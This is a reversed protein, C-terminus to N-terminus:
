RKDESPKRKNKRKGLHILQHIFGVLEALMGVVLSIVSFFGVTAVAVAFAREVNQLAVGLASIDGIVLGVIYAVFLAWMKQHVFFAALLGALIATAPILWLKDLPADPAAGFAIGLVLGQAIIVPAAAVLPTIKPVAVKKM